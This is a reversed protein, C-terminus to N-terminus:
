PRSLNIICRYLPHGCLIPCTDEFSPAVMDEFSLATLFRNTRLHNPLRTRLLYPLKFDPFDRVVPTHPFKSFVQYNSVSDDAFNLSKAQGIKQPCPQGIKQPCRARDNASSDTESQGIKQPCRARDNSSM